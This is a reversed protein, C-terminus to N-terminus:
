GAGGLVRRNPLGGLERRAECGVGGGSGLTGPAIGGRLRVGPGRGAARLRVGFGVLLLGVGRLRAGTGRRSSAIVGSRGPEDDSACLLSASGRPVLFGASRAVPYEPSDCPTGSDCQSSSTCIPRRTATILRRMFLPLSLWM